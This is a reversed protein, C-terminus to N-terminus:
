CINFFTVAKSFAEVLTTFHTYELYLLVEYTKKFSISTEFESLIKTKTRFSNLSRVFSLKSNIMVDSLLRERSKVQSLHNEDFHSTNLILLGALQNHFM